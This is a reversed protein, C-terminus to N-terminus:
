RPHTAAFRQEPYPHVVRPRPLWRTFLRGLRIASVKGKQSRRRLVRGWYRAIRERFLGLSAWNGPVGFYQYHGDLVRKLWEGVKPVPEHMRSRLTQKIKQLKAELRKRATQRRIKFRGQRTTGCSHTFGLFTFSEPKGEGRAGRERAANAGFEILRTKEPHLELGFKALREGFEKLFREAEDRHEFGVVLDDAYRIAMVKGKAAKERWVEIWLDFVHHLYLNALLPSVVAGQPTGITTESWEGDESVGAKLWKQILRHIRKDAVRHQIFRMTWEHSMNDFFGRIDADVIWNVGKREIGVSLADLANHPSRGPRFGYSFGRFDEEYIANLITVVAQQVIKDELAAIGIPRQRGDPKKLYIRRSAQARYSGRHVREHLDRLRPELGDEYEAWRVGDVGPAADRKLAHYSDRLLDVTLHHLLTTFREQKRERAAKRVGKLGQSAAAGDQAPVARAKQVNEKTRARGEVMEAAAPSQGTAQNSPKTPVVARDSEESGHTGSTRSEGEGVPSGSVRATPSSTERNEHM